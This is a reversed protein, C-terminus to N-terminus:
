TALRPNGEAFREVAQVLEPTLTLRPGTGPVSALWAVGEDIGRFTKTPVKPPNVLAFGAMFARAFVASLGSTAVVIATARLNPDLRDSLKKSRDRVAPTPAKPINKLVTLSFFPGQSRSMHGALVQEFGDFVGESAEGHFVNIILPGYWGVRLQGPWSRLEFIEM